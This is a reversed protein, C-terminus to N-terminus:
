AGIDGACPASVGTQSAVSGSSPGVPPKKRSFCGMAQYRSQFPKHLALWGIAGAIDDSGRIIEGHSVIGAGIGTGVALFIADKCGQAVGKWVEGLISCARDSDIMVRIEPNDLYSTIENLLPYNKWGEINPAWVTGKQVYSIGPVSIGIGSLSSGHEPLDHILEQVVEQILKGVEPGKANEVFVTKKTLLDGDTTFLAGSLKTGGLDLGIVAM